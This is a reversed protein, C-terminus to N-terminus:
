AQTHQRSSLTHLTCNAVVVLVVFTYSTNRAAALSTTSFFSSIGLRFRDDKAKLERKAKVLRSDPSSCGVDCGSGEVDHKSSSDSLRYQAIDFFLFLIVLWVEVV